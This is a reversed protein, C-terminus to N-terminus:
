VLNNYNKLWVFVICQHHVKYLSILACKHSDGVVEESEFIVFGLFVICVRLLLEGSLSVFFFGLWRFKVRSLYLRVFRFPVACTLCASCLSFLLNQLLSFLILSLFYLPQCPMFFFVFFYWGILILLLFLYAYIWLSFVLVIWLAIGCSFSVIFDCSRM